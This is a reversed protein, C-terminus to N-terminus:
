DVFNDMWSEYLGDLFEQNQWLDQREPRIEQAPERQDIQPAQQSESINNCCYNGFIYSKATNVTIAPLQSGGLEKDIEKNVEDFIEKITKKRGYEVLFKCFSQIFFTGRDELRFSVTTETTSYLLYLEDCNYNRTRLTITGDSRINPYRLQYVNISGRCAQFLFIKPKSNLTRNTSIMSVMEYFNYYEDQAALVNNADGHTLFTIVVCSNKSFDKESMEIFKQRIEHIRLDNYLINKVNYIGFSDQLALVDHDTGIREELGLKTHFNRHNFIYLVGPGVDNIPSPSAIKTEGSSM